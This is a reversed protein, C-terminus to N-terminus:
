DPPSDTINRSFPLLFTEVRWSLRCTFAQLLREATPTATAERPKDKLSDLQAVFYCPVDRLLYLLTCGLSDNAVSELCPIIGVQWQPSPLRSCFRLSVGLTSSQSWYNPYGKLTHFIPFRRGSLMKRWQLQFLSPGTSLVRIPRKTNKRTTPNNTRLYSALVLNSSSVTM